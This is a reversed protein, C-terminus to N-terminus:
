NYIIPDNEGFKQIGEANKEIAIKNFGRLFNEWHKNFGEVKKRIDNDMQRNRNEFYNSDTKANEYRGITEDIMDYSNQRAEESIDLGAIERRKDGMLEYFEKNEKESYM